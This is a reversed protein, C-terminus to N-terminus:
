EVVINVEPTFTEITFIDPNAELTSMIDSDISDLYTRAIKVGDVIDVTTLIDPNNQCWVGFGAFQLSVQKLPASVKINKGLFDRQKIYANKEETTMDRVKYRVEKKDPVKELENLQVQYETKGNDVIPYFGKDTYNELTPKSFRQHMVNYAEPALKINNSDIYKAYNM